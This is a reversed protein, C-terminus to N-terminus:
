KTATKRTNKKAKNAKKISSGKGKVKGKGGKGVKKRKRVASLRKRDRYGRYVAQLNTAANHLINEANSIKVRVCDLVKEEEQYTAARIFDSLCIDDKKNAM